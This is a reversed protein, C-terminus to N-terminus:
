PAQTRPRYVVYYGNEVGADGLHEAAVYHARIARVISDTWFPNDLNRLIIVGFRQSAIMNVFPSQDWVGLKALYCNIGPEIPIEKHAKMVLLMNECFVPGPTELGVDRKAIM